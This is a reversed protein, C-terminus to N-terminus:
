EKPKMIEFATQLGDFMGTWYALEKTGDRCRSMNHIAIAIGAEISSPYPPNQITEADIVNEESM